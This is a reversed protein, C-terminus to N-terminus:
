FSSDRYEQPTFGFGRSCFSNNRGIFRADELFKHEDFDYPKVLEHGRSNYVRGAIRARSDSENSLTVYIGDSFNFSEHSRKYLAAMQELTFYYRVRSGSEDVGDCYGYLDKNWDYGYPTLNFESPYVLVAGEPVSGFHLSSALVTVVGCVVVLAGFFVLINKFDFRLGRKRRHGSQRRPTTFDASEINVNRGRRKRGKKVNDKGTNNNVKRFKRSDM